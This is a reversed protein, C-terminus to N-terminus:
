EGFLQRALSDRRPSTADESSPAAAAAAPADGAIWGSTSWAGAPAAPAAKPPAPSASASMSAAMAPSPEAFKLRSASMPSRPSLSPSVVRHARRQELQASKRRWRTNDDLVAAPCQADGGCLVIWEAARPDFPRAAGAGVVPLAGGNSKRWHSLFAALRTHARALVDAGGPLPAALTAVADLAGSGSAPSALVRAVLAHDAPVRLAVLAALELVRGALPAASAALQDAVVRWAAVDPHLHLCAMLQQALYECANAAPVDDPVRPSMRLWLSSPSTSADGSHLLLLAALTKAHWEATPAHEVILRVAQRLLEVRAAESPAAQACVSMRQVIHAVNNANTVSSLLELTLRQLTDDDVELCEVVLQRLRKDFADAGVHRLISLAAVRAVPAAMRRAGVFAATQLTASSVGDSSHAALLPTATEAVFRRLEGANPLTAITQACEVLVAAAMPSALSELAGVVARLVPAADCRAVGAVDNGLQACRHMAAICRLLKIQIFPAAVGGANLDAPLCFDVCQRLVSLLADCLADSRIPCPADGELLELLWVLAAGLVSPSADGLLSALLDAVARADGVEVGRTAFRCLSMAARVRVSVHTSRALLELVLPVLAPAVDVDLLLADMAALALCQEIPRARLALDRQLSAIVLLESSRQRHPPALFLRLALYGVRKAVLVTSQTLQAAAVLAGDVLPVDRLYCHVCQVVFEVRSAESMSSSSSVVEDRLELSRQLAVSHEAAGSSSEALRRVFDVSAHTKLDSQGSLMSALNAAEIRISESLSSLLPFMSRGLPTRHESPNM